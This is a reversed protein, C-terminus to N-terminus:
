QIKHFTFGLPCHEQREGNSHQAISLYPLSELHPRSLCPWTRLEQPAASTSDPADKRGERNEKRRGLM